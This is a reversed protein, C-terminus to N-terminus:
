SLVKTCAILFLSTYPNQKNKKRTATQNQRNKQYVWLPLSASKGLPGAQFSVRNHIEVNLSAVYQLFVLVAFSVKTTSEKSYHARFVYMSTSASISKRKKIYNTDHIKIDEQSM